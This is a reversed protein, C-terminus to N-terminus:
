RLQSADSCDRSGGVEVAPSTFTRCESSPRMYPLALPGDSYPEHPKQSYDNYDPCSSPTRDQAKYDKWTKEAGQTQPLVALLGVAAGLARKTWSPAMTDVISIRCQRKITQKEITSSAGNARLFAGGYEVLRQFLSASFLPSIHERPPDHQDCLNGAHRDIRSFPGFTSTTLSSRCLPLHLHPFLGHSALAWWLVISSSGAHVGEFTVIGISAVEAENKGPAKGQNRSPAPTMTLDKGRAM